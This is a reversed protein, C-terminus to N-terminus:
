FSLYETHRVGHTQSVARNHRQMADLEEQYLANMNQFAMQLSPIKQSYRLAVERAAFYTILPEYEEGADIVQDRNLVQLPKKNIYSYRIDLDIDSTLMSSDQLEIYFDPSGPNGPTTSETTYLTWYTPQSSSLSFPYTNGSSIARKLQNMKQYPIQVVPYAWSSPFTIELIKLPRYLNDLSFKNTGSVTETRQLISFRKAHRQIAREITKFLFDPSLIDAREGLNLLQVIAGQIDRVYIM